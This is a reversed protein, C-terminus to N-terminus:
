RVIKSKTQKGLPVVVVMDGKLKKLLTPESGYKFLTEIEAFYENLGDKEDDKYICAVPLYGRGRKQIIFVKCYPYSHQFYGSGLFPLTIYFATDANFKEIAEDTSFFDAYERWSNLKEEGYSKAVITEAELIREKDVRDMNFDSGSSLSGSDEQVFPQRVKIFVKFSEDESTLQFSQTDSLNELRFCTSDLKYKLNHTYTLNMVFDFVCKEWYPLQVFGKQSFVNAVFLSIIVFLFIIKKM